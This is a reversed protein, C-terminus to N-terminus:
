LSIWMIWLFSSTSLLQRKYVDGAHLIRLLPPSFGRPSPSFIDAPSSTSRELRRAFDSPLASGWSSFPQSLGGSLFCGGWGAHLIRLFPRAGRPFPSLIDAPLSTAGGAPTCFGLPCPLEVPLPASFARRLPLLAGWGAHLVRSPLASGM